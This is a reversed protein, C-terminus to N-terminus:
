KINIREYSGNSYIILISNKGNFYKGGPHSSTWDLNLWYENENEENKYIKYNITNDNYRYSISKLIDKTLEESNGIYLEPYVHGSQNNKGNVCVIRATGGIAQVLATMLIAYDDCDGRWSKITESAPALYSSQSNPDNIYIWKKYVSDYIDCVQYINYNGGNKTSVFSIATNRVESTKYDIAESFKEALLQDMLNDCFIPINSFFIIIIIIFIIFNKM